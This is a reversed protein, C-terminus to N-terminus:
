AEPSISYIRTKIRNSAPVDHDEMAAVAITAIGEVKSIRCISAERAEYGIEPHQVISLPIFGGPVSLQGRLFLHSTSQFSNAILARLPIAVTLLLCINLKDAHLSAVAM